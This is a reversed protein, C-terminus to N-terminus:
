KLQNFFPVTGCCESSINDIRSELDSQKTKITMLDADFLEFKGNTENTQKEIKGSLDRELSSVSTSIEDNRKLLEQYNMAITSNLSAVQTDVKSNLSTIGTSLSSLQSNTSAYFLNYSSKFSNLNTELNSIRTGQTSISTVAADLNSKLDSNSKTLVDIKQELIMEYSPFCKLNVAVIMKAVGSIDDDVRGNYCSVCSSSYTHFHFTKLKSMQTFVDYGIHVVPNLAFSIGEIQNPQYEFLNSGINKIKNDILDLSRLKTLGFLHEKGIYEIGTLRIHLSELNPFLRYINNPIDKFKEQFRIQLNKVDNLNGGKYTVSELRRLSGDLSVNAECTYM